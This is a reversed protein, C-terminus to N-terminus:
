GQNTIVAELVRGSVNVVGVLIVNERGGGQAIKYAKSGKQSITQNTLIWAFRLEMWIGFIM